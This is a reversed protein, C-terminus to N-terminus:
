LWPEVTLLPWAKQWRGTKKAYIEQAGQIKDQLLRSTFNENLRVCMTLLDRLDHPALVVLEGSESLTIAVCMAIVPWTLIVQEISDYPKIGFGFSEAYWLHVRAENTIDIKLPIDAFFEKARIKHAEEKEESLDSDFYILDCDTIHETLEYGHKHNWVTQAICGGAIHWNPLGFEAARHLIKVLTPSQLIIDTLEKKDKGFHSNINM